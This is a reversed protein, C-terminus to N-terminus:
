GWIEKLKEKDADVSYIENWTEELEKITEYSCTGNGSYECFPGSCRASWGIQRDGAFEPITYIMECGCSACPRM